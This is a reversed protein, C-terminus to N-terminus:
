RCSCSDGIRQRLNAEVWRTADPGFDFTPGIQCITAHGRDGQMQRPTRMDVEIRNEVCYVYTTAAAPGAMLGVLMPLAALIAPRM